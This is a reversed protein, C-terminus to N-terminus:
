ILVKQKMEEVYKLRNVTTEYNEEKTITENGFQLESLYESEGQAHKNLDNIEENLCNRLYRLGSEYKKKM